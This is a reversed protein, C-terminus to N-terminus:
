KFQNENWLTIMLTRPTFKNQFVTYIGEAYQTRLQRAIQQRYSLEQRKKNETTYTKKKNQQHKHTHNTHKQTDSHKQILGYHDSEFYISHTSHFM